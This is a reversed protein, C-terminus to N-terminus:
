DVLEIRIDSSIKLQKHTNGAESIISTVIDKSKKLESIRQLSALDDKGCNIQTGFNKREHFNIKSSLVNTLIELAEQASFQGEIFKVSQNKEM